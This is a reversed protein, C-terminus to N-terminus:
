PCISRHRAEGDFIDPAELASHPGTFLDLATTADAKRLRLPLDRKGLTYPCPYFAKGRDCCYLGGSKFRRAKWAPHRFFRNFTKDRM